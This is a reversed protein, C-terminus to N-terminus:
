IHILSLNHRAPKSFFQVEESSVVTANQQKEIVTAELKEMLKKIVSSGGSKSADSRMKILDDLQGESGNMMFNCYRMNAVIEEDRQLYVPRNTETCADGLKQYIVRSETFGDVAENWKQTEVHLTAQMWSAYATIELRSRDDCITNEM